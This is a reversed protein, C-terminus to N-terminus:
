HREYASSHCAIDRTSLVFRDDARYFAVDILCAGDWATAALEITRPAASMTPERYPPADPAPPPEGVLSRQLAQYADRDAVFRVAPRMRSLGLLGAVVAAIGARDNARGLTALREIVAPRLSVTAAALRTLAAVEAPGPEVQSYRRFAPLSVADFGDLHDYKELTAAPIGLLAILHERERRLTEPATSPLLSYGLSAARLMRIEGDRRILLEPETEHHGDARLSGQCRFAQLGPLAAPQIPLLSPSYIALTDADRKRSAILHGRQRSRVLDIFAREVAVDRVTGSEM